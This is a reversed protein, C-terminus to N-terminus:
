INRRQAHTTLDVSEGTLELCFEVAGDVDGEAIEYSLEEDATEGDPLQYNLGRETLEASGVVAMSRIYSM